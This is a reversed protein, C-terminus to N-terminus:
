ENRCDTEEVQDILDEILRTIREPATFTVMHAAHELPVLRGRPLARAIAEGARPPTALDDAGTVVYAPVDVASLDDLVAIDAIADWGNAWASPEIGALHSLIAQAPARDREDPLFWRDATEDLVATMGNTRAMTARHRAAERASPALNGVTSLLCLSRVLSPHRLALHQAVMGGMSTGVVHAPSFEHYELLAAVDDALDALTWRASGPETRASCGHDRADVRLVRHRCGLRQAHSAWAGLELGVPHLLVVPTGAGTVVHHISPHM